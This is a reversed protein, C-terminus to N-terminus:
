SSPEGLRACLAARLARLFTREFRVVARCSACERLHMRVRAADRSTLEDDLFEWILRATDDCASLLRPQADERPDNTMAAILQM